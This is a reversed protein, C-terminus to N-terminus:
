SAQRFPEEMGHHRAQNIHTFIPGQGPDAWWSAATRLSWVVLDELRRAKLYSRTLLMANANPLLWFKGNSKLRLNVIRRVASEVAGSGIPIKRALCWQYRMRHAHRVFYGVHEKIATARRGVALSEIHAILAEIHGRKLLRKATKLWKSKLSRKKWRPVDAVRHVAEVAHYFDVVEVVRERDVGLGCALRGVREWIWPAGDSVVMLEKAQAAGLARLYALLMDFTQECDGMSADLVPRFSKLVKGLEDVAYIVLVKPEKWPAKFSRHRTRRRRRGSRSPKRIRTRGGDTCIVVRAGQLPGTQAPTGQNMDEVWDHRQADARHAFNYFLRRIVKTNFHIGRRKLVDFAAQHSDSASMQHVIEM